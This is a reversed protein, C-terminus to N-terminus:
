LKRIQCDNIYYGDSKSRWKEVMSEVEEYRVGRKKSTKVVTSVGTKLETKMFDIRYDDLEMVHDPNIATIFARYLSYLKKSDSESIEVDVFQEYGNIRFYRAKHNGFWHLDGVYLVEIERKQSVSGGVYNGIGFMHVAGGMERTNSPRLPTLSMVTNDLGKVLLSDCGDIYMYKAPQFNIEMVSANSEHRFRIKVGGIKEWSTRVVRTGDFEDIKDVEISAAQVGLAVLLGFLILIKEM